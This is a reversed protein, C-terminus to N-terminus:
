WRDVTVGLGPTEQLYLMGDRIDFGGSSPDSALDMHGDLDAYCLAPMSQALHVGAAISIRTEDNCGLMLSMGADRAYDHIRLAVTPGGCKMLKINIAHAACRDVVQMCEALGSASEDAVIPVASETTLVAADALVDQPLPQELMEVNLDATRRLLERAGALDFGQNADVRLMINPGALERIKRIREIDVELEEGIKVKLVYFGKALWAAAEALTQEISCIGITVSTAIPEGRGGWLRFLPVGQEKGLLDWLAMDVAAIAAPCDPALELAQQSWMAPDKSFEISKTLEALPGQLADICKADDEGTIEGSPSASGFGSLCGSTLRVLHNRCSTITQGTIRYGEVLPLEVSVAEYREVQVADDGCRHAKATRRYYSRLM